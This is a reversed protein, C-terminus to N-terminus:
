PAGHLSFGGLGAGLMGAVALVAAVGAVFWVGGAVSQFFLTRARGPPAHRSTPAGTVARPRSPRLRRALLLLLPVQAAILVVRPLGRVAFDSGLVVIHVIGAIYAFLALRHALAWGRHWRRALYYSPGLLLMAYFALIGVSEAWRATTGWAQPQAFPVTATRWGGLPPVDSAFPLAAHGAILVLTLMSLERHTRALWGGAPHPRRRRDSGVLGAAVAAASVALGVIGLARAAVHVRDVGLYPDMPALQVAADTGAAVRANLVAYIVWWLAGVALILGATAAWRMARAAMGPGRGTGGPDKRELALALETSSGVRPQGALSVLM